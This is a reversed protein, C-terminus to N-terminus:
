RQYNKLHNNMEQEGGPFAPIQEVKDIITDALSYYTLGFQDAPTQNIGALIRPITSTQAPLIALKAKRATALNPASLLFVLLSVLCAGNVNKLRRYLYNIRINM